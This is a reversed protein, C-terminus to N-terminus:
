AKEAKRLREEPLHLRAEGTAVVHLGDRDVGM